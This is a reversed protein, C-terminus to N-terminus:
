GRGCPPCYEHFGARPDFKPLEEVTESNSLRNEKELDPTEVTADLPVPNVTLPALTKPSEVAPFAAVIMSLIFPTM